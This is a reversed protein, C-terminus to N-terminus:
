HFSSRSIIGALPALLNEEDPGMPSSHCLEGNTQTHLSSFSPLLLLTQPLVGPFPFRVCNNLEIISQSSKGRKEMGNSLERLADGDDDDDDDGHVASIVGGGAQTGILEEDGSAFFVFNDADEDGDTSRIMQM